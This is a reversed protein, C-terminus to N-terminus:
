ERLDWLKVTTDGSGTMMLHSDEESAGTELFKVKTMHGSFKNMKKMKNLEWGYVTGSLTGAYIGNSEKTFSLCTIDSSM